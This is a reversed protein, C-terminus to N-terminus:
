LRWAAALSGTLEEQREELVELTWDARQLVQSTIAFTTVGNRRFYENKKREFDFNQAQANKRRSLLVLNALRHTWAERQEADPFWDLWVSAESPTQPLVHEVSLVKQEYTVGDEALESDRRLLLPMCVRPQLYIPGNIAERVHTKEDETM